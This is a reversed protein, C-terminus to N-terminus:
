IKEEQSLKRALAVTAEVDVMADHARGSALRNAESLHELKLTPKGDIEPWNLTGESYLRYIVTCPLIDMRRCGNAYQHTYPPLLNRHFSFRLFEDDFGLTNYGLSITKPANLWKHIKRVADYESTGGLSESIPIRHTMIARPSVIVDPRLRVSLEHRDIERFSTDTRIAAFTLVQDFAKNLGTTELDYFLFTQM